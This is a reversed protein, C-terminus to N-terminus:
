GLDPLNEVCQLGSQGLIALSSHLGEIGSSRGQFEVLPGRPWLGLRFNGSSGNSHVTWVKHSFKKM